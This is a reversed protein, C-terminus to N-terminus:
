ETGHSLILHQEEHYWSLSTKVTVLHKQLIDRIFETKKAVKKLTLLLYTYPGLIANLHLAFTPTLQLVLIVHLCPMWIHPMHLSFAKYSFLAMEEAINIM